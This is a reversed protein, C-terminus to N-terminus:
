WVCLNTFNWCLNLELESEFDFHTVQILHSFQWRKGFNNWSYDKEFQLEFWYRMNKIDLGFYPAYNRAPSGELVYRRLAIQWKRKEGAKDKNNLKQM